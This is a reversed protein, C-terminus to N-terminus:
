IFFKMKCQTECDKIQDPNANIMFQLPTTVCCM